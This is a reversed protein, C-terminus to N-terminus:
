NQRLPGSPPMEYIKPPHRLMYQTQPPTMITLRDELRRLVHNRGSLDLSDDARLNIREKDLEKIATVLGGLVPNSTKGLAVIEKSYDPVIIQIHGIYVGQRWEVLVRIPPPQLYAATLKESMLLQKAVQKWNPEVM